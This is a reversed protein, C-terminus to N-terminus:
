EPLGLGRIIEGFRPISRLPDYPPEVNLNQGIPGVKMGKEIWEMALKEDRTNAYIMAILKAANSAFTGEAKPDWERGRKEAIARAKTYDGKKALCYGIVEEIDFLGGMEAAKNLYHLAEEYRGVEILLTGYNEITWPDDPFLELSKQAEVVADAYRRSLFHQLYLIANASKSLPDLRVAEKAEARAEDFRKFYVLFLAHLWRATSDNPHAAVAAEAATRGEAFHDGLGTEADAIQVLASSPDLEGVEHVAAINPHELSGATRAEQLFRKRTTEEQALSSPLIKLAVSRNLTTDRALWAEGLSGIALKSTITYHGITTGIM